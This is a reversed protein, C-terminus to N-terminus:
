SLNAILENITVAPLTQIKITGRSAMELSVRALTANDPAEVTTVFDYQGLVAYQSLVKIGMSELEKNVEAIRTPHTKVTKAGEDTLSSLMVYVPM